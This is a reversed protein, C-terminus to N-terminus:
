HARSLFLFGAFILALGVLQVVSVTEKFFLWSGTIVFIYILSLAPYAITLKVKSLIFLWVVFSVIYFILAVLISVSKMIAYLLTLINKLSFDIPGLELMGKKLLLQGTAALVIDTLLLWLIAPTM